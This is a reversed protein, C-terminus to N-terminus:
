FWDLPAIMAAAAPRLSDLPSHTHPATGTLLQLFDGPPLGSIGVEGTELPTVELAAIPQLAAVLGAADVVHGMWGCNRCYNIRLMVDVLRRALLVFPADPPLCWRIREQWRAQYRQGAHALITQAAEIDVATIETVTNIQGRGAMYGRVRGDDDVVVEALGPPSDFLRWRWYDLTRTLTPRVGLWQQEYLMQLAPLDDPQVDRLTLPADLAAAQATPIEVTYDPIVPVFGFRHYYDPIGNLLALHAGSQRIADMCARFLAANYGAGQYRVHTCVAGVGAVQLAVGRYDLTYNGILVHSAVQGDVLLLHHNAYAFGPHKHQQDGYSIFRTYSERDGRSFVEAVLRIMADYEAPTEVQKIIYDTM